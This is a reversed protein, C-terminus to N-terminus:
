IKLIELNEFQLEQIKEFANKLSKLNNYPGLYVRFETKSLENIKVRKIKLENEIKRKLLYATKQYYFDAIKIVYKFEKNDANIIKKPPRKNLDKIGIEEVPAKTAVNREEDFTKSKNAVFTSNEDIQLIRVYPEKYDLELQDSIRKSIVSNYFIPYKSKNGVTAIISKNNLMNTIKVNTKPKLNKQFIVLSSNDIKKTVIKENFLNDNYILTFGSNKFGEKFKINTTKEVPACSILFFLIFLTKYNM